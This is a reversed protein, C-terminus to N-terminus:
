TVQLTLSIEQLAPTLSTQRSLENRQIMQHRLQFLPLIDKTNPTILEGLLPPAVSLGEGSRGNSDDLSCSAPVNPSSEAARYVITYPM